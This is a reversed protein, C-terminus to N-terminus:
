QQIALYSKIGGALNRVQFGRQKLIRSAYYSRQGVGCHVWIERDKPLEKLRMRLESLKQTFHNRQQM